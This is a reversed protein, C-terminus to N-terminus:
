LRFLLALSAKQHLGYQLLAIQSYQRHRIDYIRQPPPEYRHPVHLNYLQITLHYHAFQKLRLLAAPLMNYRAM